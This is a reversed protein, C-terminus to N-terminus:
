GRAPTLGKEMLALVAARPIRRARGLKVWPLRRKDMEAYVFGVSMGLLRATEKITILGADLMEPSQGANM